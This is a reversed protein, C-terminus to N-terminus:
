QLRDNLTRWEEAALRVVCRNMARPIVIVTRRSALVNERLSTSVAYKVVHEVDWTIDHLTDPCRKNLLIM